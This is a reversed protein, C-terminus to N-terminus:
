AENSSNGDAIDKISGAVKIVVTGDDNVTWELVDNHKLKMKDIFDQPFLFVLDEGDKIVKTIFRETM